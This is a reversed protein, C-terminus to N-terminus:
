NVRRELYADKLSRKGATGYCPM